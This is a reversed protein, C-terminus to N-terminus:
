IWGLMSLENRLIDANKYDKNKRLDNWLDYKKIIDLTLTYKYNLNLVKLIIKLSNYIENLIKIDKENNLSKIMNLILTIVNQTSIDNNMMEKFKEIYDLNHKKEDYDDNILLRIRMLTRLIKENMLIFEDMLKDSYNIPLRYHHALILLRFALPNKLNKVYIVNGLSKSMKENEFNLRGVHMWYKALNYGRNVFTQINENEHHPFILDSGGGHIDIQRNFLKDNIVACESHWGPRGMGWPSKFSIGATTKKWLVFDRFDKKGGNNVIRVSNLLKDLNQGSFNGYEVSKQVDFYVGDDIVYAYNKAILESIYEVMNGIFDTAKPIIDPHSSNLLTIAELYNKSFEDSLEKETINKKKAELIIKDDVDTINSAYTVNYGLYKLYNNLVDFFIVPRANGIHINSYVTPGCVYMLVQGKTNPKFEEIKKHMTNYIKLM